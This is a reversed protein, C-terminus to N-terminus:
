ATSLEATTSRLVALPVPGRSGPAGSGHDSFPSPRDYPPLASGCSSTVRRAENPRLVHTRLLGGRPALWAGVAKAVVAGHMLCEGAIACRSPPCKGAPGASRTELRWRASPSAVLNM